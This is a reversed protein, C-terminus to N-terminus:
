IPSAPLPLHFVPVQEPYPPVLFSGGMHINYRNKVEIIAKQLDKDAAYKKEDFDNLVGAVEILHPTRDVYGQLIFVDHTFKLIAEPNNDAPAKYQIPVGKEQLQQAIFPNALGLVNVIYKKTMVAIVPEHTDKKELFIAYGNESPSLTISKITM